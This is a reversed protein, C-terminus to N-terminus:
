NHWVEIDREADVVGRRMELVLLKLPEESVIEFGLCDLLPHQIVSHILGQMVGHFGGISLGERPQLLPGIIEFLSM